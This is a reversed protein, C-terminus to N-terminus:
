KSFATFYLRNTQLVPADIASLERKSRHTTPKSHFKFDSYTLEQYRRLPLKDGSNIEVTLQVLFALLVVVLVSFKRSIERKM